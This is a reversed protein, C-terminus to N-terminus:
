DEGLFLKAQEPDKTIGTIVNALETIIETPLLNLSDDTIGESGIVPKVPKNKDDVLNKWDVIGKKVIAWNYSGTSYSMSMDGYMKIMKDEVFAFEKPTLRRLKVTFPSDEGRESLPIYDYEETKTTIKLAM